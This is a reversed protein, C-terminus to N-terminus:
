ASDTAPAPAPGIAATGQHAARFRAIAARDIAEIIRSCAVALVPTRRDNTSIASAVGMVAAHGRAGAGAQSNRGQDFGIMIALPHRMLTVIM